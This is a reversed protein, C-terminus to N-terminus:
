LANIIVAFGLLSFIMNAMGHYIHALIFDLSNNERDRHALVNAPYKPNGSGRLNFTRGLRERLREPFTTLRTSAPGDDEDDHKHSSCDLSSTESRTHVEELAVRDQTALHSGLFLSHPMITAGLIGVAAFATLVVACAGFSPCVPICPVM